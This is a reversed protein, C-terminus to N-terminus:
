LDLCKKQNRESKYLYYLYALSICSVVVTVFLTAIAAGEISFRKILFYDALINLISSTITEFLNYKLKRLMVMINGILIKASATVVYNILLIRFVNVSDSYDKGFILMIFYDAFVFLITVMITNVSLLALSYKKFTNWVWSIEDKRSAIYPYIYIILSTPIFTMATPITTAVKYTAIATSDVLVLGIVYIDVLYLLQSLGNNVMSVISISLLENREKIDVKVPRINVSTNTYKYVILYTLIFSMTRGVIAGKDKWMFAGLITCIAVLFTGIINSYSFEKARLDSRLKINQFEVLVYVIPLLSAYLLLNGVGSIPFKIFYPIVFLIFSLIINFYIGISSGYMYIENKKIEDQVNESCLQFTGSVMGLASFIQATSVINLVYSYIGYNQKPVLRVLMVGSLLVIVKNLVNAGFIHFFGTNLYYEVKKKVRDMIM